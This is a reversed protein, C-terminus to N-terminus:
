RINQTSLLVTENLRNKQTGVVYTKTSCYSFYIKTVCKLKLETYEGLILVTQGEYDDPNLSMDEYGDTHEIGEIDPIM